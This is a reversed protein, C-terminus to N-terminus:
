AASNPRRLVFLNWACLTRTVPRAVNDLGHLVKMFRPACLFPHDTPARKKAGILKSSLVGLLIGSFKVGWFWSNAFCGIALDHAAVEFHTQTTFFRRWQWPTKFQLHPEGERPLHGSRSFKSRTAVNIKWGARFGIESVTLCNPVTCLVLGGPALCAYMENLLSKPDPLHEIVDFLLALRYGGEPPVHGALGRRIDFQPQHEIGTHWDYDKRYDEVQKADLDIAKVRFGRRAMEWTERLSGAGYDLVHSGPPVDRLRSEFISWRYPVNRTNCGIIKSVNNTRDFSRNPSDDFNM